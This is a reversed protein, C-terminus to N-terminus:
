KPPLLSRLDVSEDGLKAPDVAAGAAILRRAAMGARPNNLCMAAVPVGERLYFTTFNRAELSGRRVEQEGGLRRGFCQLAHAYQDSWFYPVPAFPELRGLMARAAAKGQQEANDWHEVRLRSDLGPHYWNAVDGAAFIDPVTTRCYQDVLVGNEIEVGSGDLYGTDLITGVGVLVLDCSVHEGTTLVAAEVRDTGLFATVGTHLRLDVGEDRHIDAYLNGIELGLAREMPVTLPEIMTVVLGRKRCAAAVEAGIFGAGVILVRPAGSMAEALEGADTMTRLTVVGALDAGPVHLTRATVGTAILLKDYPLGGGDSLRVTREAAEVQIAQVGLRLEINQEVYYDSPRLYAQEPTTEGLLIGKSLPPREYPREVEAGVLVIRGDFGERRLTEAARGGAQGAGLIVFTPVTM